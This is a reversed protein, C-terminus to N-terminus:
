TSTQNTRWLPCFCSCPASCTRPPAQDELNWPGLALPSASPWPVLMPCPRWCPALPPPALPGPTWPDLPGPTWYPASTPVLHAATLDFTSAPPPPPLGTSSAPAPVLAHARPARPPATPTPPLHGPTVSSGSFWPHRSPLIAPQCPPVIDPHRTQLPCPELAMSFPRTMVSTLLPTSLTTGTPPTSSHTM